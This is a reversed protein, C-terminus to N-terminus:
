RSAKRDSENSFQPFPQNEVPKKRRLPESANVNFDILSYLYKCAMEMRKCRKENGEYRYRKFEKDYHICCKKLCESEIDIIEKSTLEYEKDEGQERKAIILNEERVVQMNLLQQDLRKEVMKRTAMGNKIAESFMALEHKDFKM